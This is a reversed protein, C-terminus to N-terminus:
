MAAHDGGGWLADGRAGGRGREDWALPPATRTVPTAWQREERRRDRFSQLADLALDAATDDGESLAADLLDLLRGHAPAVHGRHTRWWEAHLRVRARRLPDEAVSVLRELAFTSDTPLVMVADVVAAHDPDLEGALKALEEAEWKLGREAFCHVRQALGFGDLGSRERATQLTQAEAGGLLKFAARAEDIARLAEALASGAKPSRSWRCRDAASRVKAVQRVYQKDYDVGAMPVPGATVATETQM